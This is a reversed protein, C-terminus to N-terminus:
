EESNLGNEKTDLKDIWEREKRLLEQRNAGYDLVEVTIKEFSHRQYHRIFKAGDGTQHEVNRRHESIRTCLSRTTMGVYMIDCIGCTILYVVHNDSCTYRNVGKVIKSRNTCYEGICEM